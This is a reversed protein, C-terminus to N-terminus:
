WDEGNDIGMIFNYLSETKNNLKDEVAKLIIKEDTVYVLSHARIKQFKKFVTYPTFVVLNVDEFIVITKSTEVQKELRKYSHHSTNALTNKPKSKKWFM